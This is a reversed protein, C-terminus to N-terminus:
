TGKDQIDSGSGARDGFREDAGAGTDDGHFSVGAPGLHEACLEALPDDHHLGVGAVKAKRPPGVVHDGIRGERHAALQESPKDL